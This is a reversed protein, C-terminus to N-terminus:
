PSLSPEMATDGDSVVKRLVHRRMMRSAVFYAASALVAVPALAAMGYGLSATGYRPELQDSIMGVFLPGFGLGFVNNTWVLLATVTARREPPVMSHLLAVTPTEKVVSFLFPAALLALALPWHSALAAAILFPATVLFGVAPILPYLARRLAFRDVLFGSGLGGIVATLGAAPGYFIALEHLTIGKDRLLLAPAWIVMGFGVFAALATALGMCLIVGSAACCKLTAVLGAFFGEEESSVSDQGDYLGRVPERVLAWVIGAMVIGAGGIVLFAVRWGHEAAIWGGLMVGIMSGVPSGLMFISIPLGRKDPPFLDSIMSLSAPNCGAEGVGVGIRGLAMQAFNQAAGCGMTFASWTAMAVAILRARNHRDALWGIPIGFTTYFLAFALGTLLGLQTDSLKLDAKISEALISPLQRDLFSIAYVL